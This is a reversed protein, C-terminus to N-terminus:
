KNPCLARIVEWPKGPLKHPIINDKTQLQQIGICIPWNKLVNEIVNNISVWYESERTLLIHDMHLPGMGQQQLIMM